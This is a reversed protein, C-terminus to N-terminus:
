EVTLRLAHTGNRVVYVGSSLGQPLALVATGTADAPAATVARGLADFVTVVTGPLAGALTVAGGHGAPAPNPFLALGASAGNLAVARIPSHSFTGDTDVQRLRYYLTPHHTPLNTDVLEYSRPASSSGAAGVTGIRVFSTGDASREVEFAASNKESATAWALRVATTGEATATFATLEVPLPAASNGLTWVSFDTIGTKAIVNGAATTGRQPIWPTGGSMSKFLALNAVPIGNREHDFYAFDMTVNLGTNVTPVINFNRLISQSTGAGALATGTTRTVLTTGPATSGTAPALTLGLGGFAEAAGPALPRTAVVKGLVYSAEQELLTGTSGLTITRTGTTLVGSSMTLVGTTTLDNTLTVGAANGVTLGAITGPLGTGTTQAATGNYDYSAGAGFSRATTTQVAGTATGLASIGAGNGTKLLGGSSLVFSGAGSIVRTGTTAVAGSNITLTKAAPVTLDGNTLNLFGSISIAANTLTVGAENGVTLGAVTAPLGDGTTQAVDGAYIYHAQSSFSRSGTVQVAGTAGSLSIGNPDCIGLKAGPEVVFSGTGSVVNCPDGATGRRFAGSGQRFLFSGGSSVTVVSTVTLNGTLTAVGNAAVTVNAYVGTVNQPTAVLLNGPVITYTEGAASASALYANTFADQVLPGTGPATLRVSGDGNIGTLTVDYTTGGSAAVPVVGSVTGGVGGASVVAFTAAAVGTVAENFVVRFTVDPGTASATAPLLRTSAAVFPQIGDVIIGSTSPVGNLTRNVAVGGSSVISGGSLASAAVLAIGDLDLDTGDVTRSFQLTTTGSGGTLAAPVTTSGMVLNLTPSGSVTVPADFVVTFALLQGLKYNQSAPVGVSVVVPATGTPVTFIGTSTATGGPTTVSITGTSAGAPVSVTIQTSSNVVFGPAATGNFAVATAGTFNTGTLQVSTTAPGSTPTFSTLTPVACPTLVVTNSPESTSSGVTATASYSGATSTTLPNTTSGGPAFTFTAGTLATSTANMSGDAQVRALYDPTSAVGNYSLFSGGALVKGDAQLAIGFVDATGFGTGGANFSNDYQGAATLRMLGGSVAAGNYSNSPTGVLIKGDALVGVSWVVNDFGAGNLNFTNDLGGTTTLRVLHDPALANNDFSGAALIKGDPQVAVAWVKNAIGAPSSDFTLDRSGNANMRLLNAAAVNNYTGFEGGAVIRGNAQLALALVGGDVGQGGPNFTADRTGDANLRVLGTPVTVGNLTSFTGGVLIKGDPQLALAWVTGDFGSGITFSADLSGNANLRLLRGSSGGFAGGVLTKGDPQAVLAYVDGNVGAASASLTNDITGNANLRVLYPQSAGNFQTFSGGALVKGDTQVTVVRVPNNFGTGGPAFGPRTGTATLTQPSCVSLPGIPSLSVQADLMPAYTFSAASSAVATANSVTIPGSAAAVPVVATITSADVVTFRLALAGTGFRVGTAGTLNTGTITVVAGAAASAPSFGTVTFATSVPEYVGFAYSVKSGDGVATFPGGAYVNGGTIAGLAYVANNLGTGLVSWTGGNWKAIRSAAAGGAQVFEGGAYLDPGNLTLAQVRGDTGTGLSSWATGNWRAVNNAANGGAATFTGGVYVDTSNLVLADVTGSLDIGNAAGTGLSSWTSGNWRAVRNAAVSGAMSFGGGLYLDTGRLALANVAANVGENAGSGLAQWASGTWRAINTTTVSGAQAFQGGVYLATGDVALATVFINAGDAIGTGLSSWATGNWKAVHSAPNGGANLFRGGAYLTTGSIALSEVVDDTGNATGTGLSSWATGNWKAVYNAAVGGVQTFPGGVYVDTGSVVVARIDNTVSGFVGNAAAGLANWASGDWRALRGVTTGGATAFLGGVLVDTGNLALAQVTSNVGNTTGTGLSSWTSGNWRAVRNATLGGATTFLGGVYVNSGSVSLAFVLSAVGNATGDTATTGSGLASWATGNWRAVYRAATGGATTFLGGAYVSTGSVALANVTSGVGNATGDTATTGSGLASWTTGNWRAVYRAATGGATTFGGGAYVIGTGGVALASVTSGVGNATGDTATTGSGLASWATGNWRAVRNATLGGATTFGGGAYVIGTGDVALANVTSGVGNATGDTAITGSGLASWATGNWRAVRSAPNGGANTFSGGVYVNGTGDVALANVTGDVGNATGTGLSVWTTGNWRAVRNAVVNGVITFSGAVYTDTGVQVVALVSSNAGRIGFGDQWNVDGAGQIRKVGAPRFVPRGDPATGMTFARADFSGSAGARLTGDSNLAQSLSPTTGGGPGAAAPSEAWASGALLLLFLVMCQSLRNTCKSTFRKIM